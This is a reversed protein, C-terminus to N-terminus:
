PQTNHKPLVVTNQELTLLSSYSINPSKQYSVTCYFFVYSSRMKLAILIVFAIVAFFAASVIFAMAGSQQECSICTGLSSGSPVAYNPACQSCRLNLSSNQIHGKACSAYYAVSANKFDEGLCSSPRKCKTFNLIHPAPCRSWGFLARIDKAKIPGNCAAGSPCTKCGAKNTNTINPVWYQKDNCDAPQLGSRCKHSGKKAATPCPLCSEPHGADPNYKGIKCDECTTKSTQFYKKSIKGAACKKCSSTDNQDQWQGYPCADCSSKDENIFSGASCDDKCVLNTTDDNYKGLACEVCTPVSSFIGSAQCVTTGTGIYGAICIVEVSQFTTGTISSTAKNSNAVNGPTSCTNALCNQASRSAAATSITYGTNCASCDVTTTNYECLTAGSPTGNPCICANQCITDMTDDNPISARGVPCPSCSDTEVFIGTGEPSSMYTDAPCCGLRATSTGLRGATFANNLGNNATISEWKSGCLTRKFGSDFFAACLFFLAHFINSILSVVYNTTIFLFSLFSLCCCFFPFSQSQDNVYKAVHKQSELGGM